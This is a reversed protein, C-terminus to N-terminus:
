WSGRQVMPRLRHNPYRPAYGTGCETTAFRIARQKGDAALVMFTVHEM